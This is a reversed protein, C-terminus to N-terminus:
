RAHHADALVASGVALNQTIFLAGNDAIEIAIAEAGYLPSLLNVRHVPSAMWRAVAERTIEPQTKWDFEYSRRGAPSTRVRYEHYRHTLYLNEGIGKIRVAGVQAETPFGARRAREDPGEGQRNTHGFYAHEVMDRSHAAAIPFLADTWVLPKLGHETRVKNVLAHIEHALDAPDLQPADEAASAPWAAPALLAALPDRPLSNSAACGGLLAALTLSLIAISTSRRTAM